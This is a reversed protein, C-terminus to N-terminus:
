KPKGGGAQLQKVAKGLEEIDLFGSKDTDVQDYFQTLLPHAKAEDRDLLGDQNTDMKGFSSEEPIAPGVVKGAPKETRPVVIDFYGIMMEDWSQDGWKVKKSPDPNNLNSESNNFSAAGQQANKIDTATGTCLAQEWGNITNAGGVPLSM